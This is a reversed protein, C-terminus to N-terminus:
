GRCQVSFMAGDPDAKAPGVVRYTKQPGGAYDAITVTDGVAVVVGAAVLSQGLLSVERDGQLITTGDIRNDAYDSVLGRCSYTTSTPHVGGSVVGPTRTGATKKTLTAPLLHTGLNSSILKRINGSLLKM